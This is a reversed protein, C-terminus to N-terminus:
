KDILFMTELLTQDAYCCNRSGGIQHLLSVSQCRHFSLIATEHADNMILLNRYATLLLSDSHVGGGRYVSVCMMCLACFVLVFRFSNVLNFSFLYSVM